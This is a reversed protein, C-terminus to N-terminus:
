VLMDLSFNRMPEPFLLVPSCAPLSLSGHAWTLAQGSIRMAEDDVDFSFQAEPAPAVPFRWKVPAAEAEIGVDGRQFEAVVGIKQEM